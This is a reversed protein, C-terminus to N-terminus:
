KFLNDDKFKINTKNYFKYYNYNINNKIIMQNKVFTYIM